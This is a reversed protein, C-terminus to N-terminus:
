IASQTGLSADLSVDFRLGNSQASTAARASVTRAVSTPRAGAAPVALDSRVEGQVAGTSGRGHLAGSAGGASALVGVAALVGLSRRRNM